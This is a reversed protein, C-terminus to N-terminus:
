LVIICDVELNEAKRKDITRIKEDIKCHRTKSMKNITMYKDKWRKAKHQIDRYTDYSNIHHAKTASRPM